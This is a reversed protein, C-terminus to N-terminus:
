TIQILYPRYKPKHLQKFFYKYKCLYYLTCTSQVNGNYSFLGKHQANGKKGKLYAYKLLALVSKVSNLGASNPVREFEM